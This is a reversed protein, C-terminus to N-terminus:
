GPTEVARYRARFTEDPVPWVAGDADRLLWDGAQAASIGETTTVPVGRTLQVAHVLEHKAYRGDPRRHYSRAFAEAEVTWRNGHDDTLEWDGAEARMRNGRDTRWSTAAPLRTASVVSSPRYPAAHELM